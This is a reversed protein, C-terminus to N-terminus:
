VPHGLEREDDSTQVPPEAPTCAASPSRRWRSSRPSASRAQAAPRAVLALLALDEDLLAEDRRISGEAIAAGASSKAVRIGGRELHRRNSALTARNCRESQGFRGVIAASSLYLRSAARPTADISNDALLVDPDGSPGLAIRPLDARRAYGPTARVACWARAGARRARGRRLRHLGLPACPLRETGRAARRSRMRREARERRHDSGGLGLANADGSSPSRQARTSWSRLSRATRVAGCLRTRRGSRGPWARRGGPRRGGPQADHAHSPSRGSRAHGTPIPEPAAVNPPSRLPARSRPWCGAPLFAACATFAAFTIRGRKM